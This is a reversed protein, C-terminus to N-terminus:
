TKSLYDKQTLKKTNYLSGETETKKENLKATYLITQHIKSV